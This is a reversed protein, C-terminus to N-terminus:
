SKVIKYCAYTIGHWGVNFTPEFFEDQMIAAQDNEGNLLVAGAYNFVARRIQEPDEDKLGKLILAVKKWSQKSLLARCLDVIQNTVEATKKAVALRQEPEVSIVQDLIQLANRPHGQSDLIIQDYIEKEITVEEKRAVNRLLKYLDSDKLQTMQYQTCRGRVTPLLKQPDTTALIYYVHNPTDELSKLLAAQADGLMKQCEDMLWVICEGHVPKYQSQRKIDRIHDIGRLDGIDLERFDTEKCDLMNAIIRAVTTKGTGTPGSILISHPKDEKAFDAKITALTSENGYMEELSTPRYKHYLM